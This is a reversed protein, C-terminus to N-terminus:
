FRDVYKKFIVRCVNVFRFTINKFNDGSGAYEGFADIFEYDSHNTSTIELKNNYSLEVTLNAFYGTNGNWPAHLLRVEIGELVFSNDLTLNYNVGTVSNSTVNAFDLYSTDRDADTLPDISFNYWNHNIVSSPRVFGTDATEVFNTSLNGSKTVTSSTVQGILFVFIFFVFINRIFNNRLYNAM